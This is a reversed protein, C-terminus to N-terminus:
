DENLGDIKVIMESGANLKWRGDREKTASGDMPLIREAVLQARCRAIM